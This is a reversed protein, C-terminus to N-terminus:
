HVFYNHINPPNIPFKIAGETVNRWNKYGIAFKSSGRGGPAIRNRQSVASAAMSRLPWGKVITTVFASLERGYRAPEEYIPSNGSDQYLSLHSRPSDSGARSPAM